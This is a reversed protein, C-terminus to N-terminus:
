AEPDDSKRPKAAAVNIPQSSDVSPQPHHMQHEQHEWFATKKDRQQVLGVLDFPDIFTMLFHRKESYGPGTIETVGDQALYTKTSPPLYHRPHRLNVLWTNALMLSAEFVYFFWEYRVIPSLTNPDIGDTAHLDAVSFYEVVRYITRTFLLAESLYLTTLASTLKASRIGARRTRRQFVVALAVFSMVVAVQMLLSAKLLAHGADQQAQPSETNASKAAGNANLSEVVASIIAFTTLVRGPHIPSLQPVYYLIRGLITYNALELMPPAAYVLVVTSIYIPVNDYHYAGVERLIFGATFVVNCFVYIWMLRWSRYHLCQWAHFLGSIAFGVAFFIPAAKNPAYIYISGDVPNNTAVPPLCLM